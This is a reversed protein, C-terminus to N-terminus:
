EHLHHMAEDMKLIMGSKRILVANMVFYLLSNMLNLRRTSVAKELKTITCHM